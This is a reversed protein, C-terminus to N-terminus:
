MGLIKLLRRLGLKGTADLRPRWYRHDIQFDDIRAALGNRMITFRQAFNHHARWPQGLTIELILFHTCLQPSISPQM